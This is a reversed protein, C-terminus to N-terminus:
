PEFAKTVLLFYPRMSLATRIMIHQKILTTYEPTGMDVRPCPRRGLGYVEEAAVM